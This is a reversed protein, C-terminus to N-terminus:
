KEFRDPVETVRRQSVHNVWDASDAPVPARGAAHPATHTNAYTVISAWDDDQRASAVRPSYYGATASAVAARRANHHQAIPRAAHLRNEIRQAGAAHARGSHRKVAQAPKATKHVRDTNAHIARGTGRVIGRGASLAPQAVAPRPVSQPTASGTTRASVHHAHEHAAREDALRQSATGDVVHEQQPAPADATISDSPNDGHPTHSVVIWALLAAGGVAFAGGALRNSVVPQTRRLTVPRVADTRAASKAAAPPLSVSAPAGPEVPAAAARPLPLFHYPVDWRCAERFAEGSLCVTRMIAAYLARIEARLSFHPPILTWERGFSAPIRGLPLMRPLAIAGEVQIFSSISM